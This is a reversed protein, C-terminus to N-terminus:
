GSCLPGRRGLLLLIYLLVIIHRHIKQCEVTAWKTQSIAMRISAQSTWDWKTVPLQSWAGHLTSQWFKNEACDRFYRSLFFGLTPVKRVSHRWSSKISCLVVSWTIYISSYVWVHECERDEVSTWSTGSFHKLKFNDVFHGAKVLQFYKHFIQIKLISHNSWRPMKISKMENLEFSTQFLM